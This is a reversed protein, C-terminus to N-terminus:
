ILREKNFLAQKNATLYEIHVARNEARIKSSDARDKTQIAYAV